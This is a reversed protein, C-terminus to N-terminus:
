EDSSQDDRDDDSEGDRDDDEFAAFSVTINDEVRAENPGDVNASEPDLLTDDELRFWSAVDAVLTVNREGGDSTVVLAPDVPVELVADLDTEFVFARANFTGEVRLSVGELEPHDALVATDGPVNAQPVHLDLELEEYIGVPIAGASGIPDVTDALSPELLLPGAGFVVCGNPDELDGLGGCEEGARELAIGRVVIAVRTVVLTNFADDVVLDFRASGDEFPGDEIASVFLSLEVPGGTEARGTPGDDEDCASIMALPSGLLALRVVWHRLM